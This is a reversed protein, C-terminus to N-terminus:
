LSEDLDLQFSIYEARGDPDDMASVNRHEMDPMQTLKAFVAFRSAYKPAPIVLAKLSTRVTEIYDEVLKYNNNIRELDAFQLKIWKRLARDNMVATFGETQLSDKFHKFGRNIPNEYNESTSFIHANGFLVAGIQVYGAANTPDDIIFKWYRNQKDTGTPFSPAIYYSNLLESTITFSTNVTGFLADNSGQVTISAERTMNHNRIAVTDITVGQTVGTDCVLEVSSVSSRYVQEEIDTNLNRALFDGAAINSATWNDGGLAATGRSSFLYLIRLQTDNYVVMTAQMGYRGIQILTTQMGFPREKEVIMRAQHGIKKTAHIVMTAQLGYPTRHKLVGKTQMGVRRTAHVVMLAQQGVPKTAHIVMQSQQGVHKTQAVGMTVQMGMFAEMCGALYPGELYGDEDLYYECLAHRLTDAKASMGSLKLFGHVHASAQMGVDHQVGDIANVQMGKVPAAHVAMQAQQGIVKTVGALDMDAQQGIAKTSHTVMKAQQGVTRSANVRMLAQQGATKTAHIVMRAQEGVTKSSHVIMQAQLGYAYLVEGDLYEDTLYDEVLYGHIDTVVPSPSM